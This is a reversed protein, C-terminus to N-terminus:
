DGLLDRLAGELDQFRYRYGHELLRQPVAYQGGLLMGSMEGLVLSLALGPAPMFSPRGLVRGLARAFDRNSVPNPAVLNFPGRAEPSDLLFRMAGVEDALHIWPMGQRGSGLPGGAFMRFPLAMKPLAGAERALVIGTRLVARRVGLSEVEATAAEWDACVRALFDTGPPDSETVREPGRPGYYGVASGQLLVRPKARAGRIAAAVAESARVRSDRIRRKRQATWRGEAISEGALHVIATDADIMDGWTGPAAADWEVARMGQHLKARTPSRTLVVVEHGAEGLARALAGGILGPGGTILIKM